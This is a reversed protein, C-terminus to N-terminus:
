KLLKQEKLQWLGGQKSDVTVMCIALLGVPECVIFFGFSGFVLMQPVFIRNNVSRGLLYPGAFITGLNKIPFVSVIVVLM